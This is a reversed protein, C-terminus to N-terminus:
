FMMLGKLGSETKVNEPYVEIFWMHDSYIGNKAWLLKNKCLFGPGRSRTLSLFSQRSFIWPTNSYHDLDGLAYASLIGNMETEM